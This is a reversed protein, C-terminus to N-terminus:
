KLQLFVWFMFPCKHTNRELLFVSELSSWLMPKLRQITHPPASPLFFFILKAKKFSYILNNQQLNYHMHFVILMLVFKLLRCFVISNLNTKTKM